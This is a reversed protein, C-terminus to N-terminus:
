PQRAEEAVEQPPAAPPAPEAMPPEPEISRPKAPLVVAAVPQRSSDLPAYEEAFMEGM